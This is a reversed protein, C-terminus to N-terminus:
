KMRFSTTATKALSIGKRASKWPQEAHTLESLETATMPGYRLLVLTAIAENKESLDAADGEPWDHVAFKRRHQQFLPYAVPGKAWAQFKVGFMTEDLLALNWSQCYYALKQLKM